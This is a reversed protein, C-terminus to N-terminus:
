RTTVHGKGTMVRNRVYGPGSLHCQCISSIIKKHRRSSFGNGFFGHPKSQPRAADTEDSFLDAIEMRSDIDAGLSDRPRHVAVDVIRDAPPVSQIRWEM